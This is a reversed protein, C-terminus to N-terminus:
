VLVIAINSIAGESETVSVTGWEVQAHAGDKLADINYKVTAGDSVTYTHEASITGKAIHFGPVAADEPQLYVEFSGAVVGDVDKFSPERGKANFEEFSLAYTNANYKVDFYEGGEIKAEQKDGKSTELSVTGEKPTPVEKWTTEGAKKVFIRPKGWAITSM